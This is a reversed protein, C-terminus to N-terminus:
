YCCPVLSNSPLAPLRALQQHRGEFGPGPRVEQETLPVNTIGPARSLLAQSWAQWGEPPAAAKAVLPVQLLAAAAAAAAAPPPLAHNPLLLLFPFRTIEGTAAATCYKV